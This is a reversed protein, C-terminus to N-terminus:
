RFLIKKGGIIYIGQTPKTVRQGTLNYITGDYITGAKDQVCDIATAGGPLTVKMMESWESERMQAIAKVRYAYTHGPTLQELTYSTGQIDEIVQTQGSAQKKDQLAGASLYNLYARKSSTEVRLSFKETVGEFTLEQDEGNPAISFRQQVEGNIDLLNVRVVGNDSGYKSANILVTLTGGAPADFLPSLLKGTAVSSGMKLRKPSRYLKEGTWGPNTLYNDLEKGIDQSGDSTVNFHENETFDEEFLLTPRASRDTVELTYHEAGEVAEWSVVFGTSDILEPDAKLQPIDLPTGGNFRFSILGNSVAINDIPKNLLKSGDTNANYLTAAPTTTNTLATKRGTGPYTNGAITTPYVSNQHKNNAPVITMRQHSATNNVTNNAWAYADYDVHLVLMDHGYSAADWNRYECTPDHQPQHNELMYYEDRDKANYIIYAEPAQTIPKMGAIECGESLETPTLWGSYWREYSTYPSPLCGDGNYCGYDMLSWTNMGPSSGQTDYFDPLGMCHSFEHAATGIGDMMTGYAGQLESSCAYTDITVGDLHIAGNGGSGYYKASELSWEHPWITNSPGGAAESYGAYIVFIQDVEKDGDWDYQSFNVGDNHALNIAETILAGPYRDDGRVNQGYYNLDQSVEYPGVVDFDIKLQGYSQDYFYDSLSGIHGNLSYNPENMQAQFEEQTHVMAKDKYNVLIIIGKKNGTSASSSGVNRRLAAARQARRENNQIRRESLLSPRNAMQTFTGNELEKYMKGDAAVWYHCYEDGVLRIEVTSGDAQQILRTTRKAPVAWSLSAMLLALLSLAIRQM